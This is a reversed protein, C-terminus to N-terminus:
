RDLVRKIIAEIGQTINFSLVNLHGFLGIAFIVFLLFDSIELTEGQLLSPWRVQVFYYGVLGALLFNIVDNWLEVFKHQWNWSKNIEQSGYKIFGLVLSILLISFLIVINSDSM